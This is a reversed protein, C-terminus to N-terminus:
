AEETGRLVPDNTLTLVKGPAIGWSLMPIRTYSYDPALTYTNGYDTIVKPTVTIPNVVAPPACQIHTESSETTSISPQEGFVVVPRRDYVGMTAVCSSYTTGGVTRLEILCPGADWAKQHWLEGNLFFWVNRGYQLMRLKYVTNVRGPEGIVWETVPVSSGAM